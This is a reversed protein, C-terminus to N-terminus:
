SSKIDRSYVQVGFLKRVFWSHGAVSCILDTYAEFLGDHSFSM